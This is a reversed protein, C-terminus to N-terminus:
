GTRDTRHICEADFGRGRLRAAGAMSIDTTEDTSDDLIQIELKDQPYDLAAVADLLRDVVHMENFVPLQVTVLPMEDATFERDPQPRKKGHKFYLYLTSWRYCGYGALGLLVVIYSFYWAWSSLDYSM